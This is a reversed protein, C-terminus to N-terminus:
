AAAARPTQGSAQRSIIAGRIADLAKLIEPFTPRQAPDKALCAAGLAAVEPPVADGFELNKNQITVCFIIQAGRGRAAEAGTRAGPLAM